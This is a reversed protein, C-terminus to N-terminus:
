AFTLGEDVCEDSLVSSLPLLEEVANQEPSDVAFLYNDAAVIGMTTTAEAFLDPVHVRAESHSEYEAVLYAHSKGDYYVWLLYDDTGIDLNTSTNPRETVTYGGAGSEPMGDELSDMSDTSCTETDPTSSDGSGSDDGSNGDGSDGDSAEEDDSVGLCGAVSGIGAAAVASLLKRREFM